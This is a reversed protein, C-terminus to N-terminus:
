SVGAKKRDVDKHIHPASTKDVRPALREAFPPATGSWRVTGDTEVHGVTGLSYSRGRRLKETLSLAVGEAARRVTVTEAASLPVPRAGSSINATFALKEPSESLPRPAVRWYSPLHIFGLDSGATFVHAIHRICGVHPRRREDLIPRSAVYEQLMMPGSLPHSVVGAKLDRRRHVTIGRGCSGRPPKFIIYDSGTKRLWAETRPGWGQYVFTRPQWQPLARWTEIKSACVRRLAEGYIRCTGFEDRLLRTIKRHSRSVEPYLRMMGSRGFHHQLEILLPSGDPRIIFDFGISKAFSEAPVTV